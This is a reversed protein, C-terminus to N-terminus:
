QGEGGALERLVRWMLQKRNADSQKLLDRIKAETIREEAVVGATRTFLFLQQAEVGLGVALKEINDLTINREGREVAGVYKYDLGAREALDQQTWGQAHRLQRIRQGLHKRLVGSAAM